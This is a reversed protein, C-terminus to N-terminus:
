GFAFEPHVCRIRQAPACTRDPADALFAIGQIRMSGDDRLVLHVSTELAIRRGDKTVIEIEYVLGFRERCHSLLQRRIYGALEPALIEVVNMERAEESSYGLIQVGRCNLFTFNGNLDLEYVAKEEPAERDCLESSLLYSM